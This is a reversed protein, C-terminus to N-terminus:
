CRDIVGIFVQVEVVGRELFDDFVFSREGKKGFLNDNDFVIFGLELIRQRLSDLFRAFLVEDNIDGNGRREGIVGVLFVKEGIEGGVLEQRDNEGM